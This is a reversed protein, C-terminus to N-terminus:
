TVGGVRGRNGHSPSLYADRRDTFQYPHSTAARILRPDIPGESTVVLASTLFHGISMVRDIDVARDPRDEVLARRYENTLANIWDRIMNLKAFPALDSFSSEFRRM